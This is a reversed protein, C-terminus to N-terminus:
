DTKLLEALERALQVSARQATHSVNGFILFSHTLSGFCHHTVRNGAAKIAQAYANGQDRIPDFGATAVIAPPLNELNDNHLPNAWKHDTNKDDPFVQANFFDMTARNLPFTEACSVVSGQEEMQTAVWPYVLLQAAPQVGGRDRIEQALVASILGGASDGALAIRASAIGLEAAHSQVYDWLALADDIAAPFAHEPCLRYDLSIVRAKAEDAMVSCFTDDSDLDMVVLGGQHFFLIAPALDPCNHPTYIRVKIDGVSASFHRDVSQVGARRSADLPKLEAMSARLEDLPPFEGAEPANRAAMNAVIQMNVDLRNGDIDLPKGALLRLIFNPMNKMIWIIFSQM